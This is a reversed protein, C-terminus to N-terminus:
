NIAVLKQEDLSVSNVTVDHFVRMHTVGELPVRHKFEGINAGNIQIAYSDTAVKIEILFAEGSQLGPFDSSEEEGWGDVEFHNRVVTESGHRVDLHMAITDGEEPEDHTYPGYQLNISTRDAQEPVTGHIQLHTGPSLTVAYLEPM